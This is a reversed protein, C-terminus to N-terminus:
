RCVVGGKGGYGDLHSKSFSLTGQNSEIWAGEQIWYAYGRYTQPLKKKLVPWLNM